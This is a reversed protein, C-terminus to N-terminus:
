FCEALLIPLAALFRTLRDPLVLNFGVIIRVPRTSVSACCVRTEGACEKKTDQAAADSRPREAATRQVVNRNEAGGFVFGRLEVRQKPMLFGAADMCLGKFAFYAVDRAGAM